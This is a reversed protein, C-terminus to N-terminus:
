FDAPFHFPISPNHPASVFGDFHMSGTSLRCSLCVQELYRISLDHDPVPLALVADHLDFLVEGESVQRAKGARVFKLAKKFHVVAKDFRDTEVYM